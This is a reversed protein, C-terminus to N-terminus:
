LLNGIQKAAPRAELHILGANGGHPSSVALVARTGASYLFLAGDEAEIFVEEFTGASLSLSIRRGLGAAAAAMAAVRDADVGSSLSHAIPLGENSALLVGNVEPIANRLAEIRAKLEEGIAM